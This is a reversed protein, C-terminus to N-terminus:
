SCQMNFPPINDIKVGKGWSYWNDPSSAETDGQPSILAKNLFQASCISQGHWWTMFRWHRHCHHDKIISRPVEPTLQDWCVDGSQPWDRWAWPVRHYHCHHHQVDGDNGHDNILHLNTTWTRTWKHPPLSETPPLLLSHDLLNAAMMM